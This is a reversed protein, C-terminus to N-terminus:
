ITISNISKEWAEKNLIRAKQIFEENSIKEADKIETLIEQEINRIEKLYQEREPISKKPKKKHPKIFKTHQSWFWDPNVKEYPGPKLVKQDEVPFVYPKYISLCPLTSGTFWHVTKNNGQKLHSVQSGTSEFGGGHMCIGIEHERLFNMMLESTINGKNESLLYMSKGERTDRRSSVPFKDPIYSDSFTKAFDFDEDDKCYGKEIAHQITGERRLDGKGRISVNNSISRVDKVIEAVWWEDATELVYAEKFDAIIYSNHYLWSPAEFGCGGGQGYKELLTIIIELSERATKGRELGLRLLDMGLLGKQRLPEKTYIAENGIAVGYANCGSEAGWMWWPQSLIVAFTESVQPITIYTCNLEEGKSYRKRPAYTILQAESQPRDSNKGFMVSKGDSTSNGLAVLTDCM